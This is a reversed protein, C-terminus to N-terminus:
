GLPLNRLCGATVCHPGPAALMSTTLSHKSANAKPLLRKNQNLRGGSAINVSEARDVRVGSIQTGTAGDFTADGLQIYGIISPLDAALRASELRDFNPFPLGFRALDDKIAHIVSLPSYDALQNAQAAFLFARIAPLAATTAFINWCIAKAM